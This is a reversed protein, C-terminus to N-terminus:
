FNFTRPSCPPVCGNCKAVIFVMFSQYLSWRLWLVFLALGLIEAYCFRPLLLTVTNSLNFIFQHVLFFDSSLLKEWVNYTCELTSLICYRDENLHSLCLGRAQLATVKRLKISLTSSWKGVHLLSKVDWVYHLIM